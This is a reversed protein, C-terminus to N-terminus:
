RSEAEPHRTKKAREGGANNYAEMEVRTCLKSQAGQLALGQTSANSPQIHKTLHAGFSSSASASGPMAAVAVLAFAALM